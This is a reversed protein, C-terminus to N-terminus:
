VKKDNHSNWYAVSGVPCPPHDSGQTSKWVQMWVPNGFCITFSFKLFKLPSWGMKWGWGLQGKGRAEVDVLSFYQLCPGLPFSIEKYNDKQLTLFHWFHKLFKEVKRQAFLYYNSFSLWFHGKETQRFIHFKQRCFLLQNIEKLCNGWYLTLLLLWLPLAFVAGFHPM